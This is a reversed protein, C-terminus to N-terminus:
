RAISFDKIVAMHQMNNAGSDGQQVPPVASLPQFVRSDFVLGRETLNDADGLVVQTRLNKLAQSTYIGDYPNGRKANTGIKGDQDIPCDKTSDMAVIGSKKLLSLAADSFDNSNFDGAIAIFDGEPINMAQINAILEEMSSQRLGSTTSLHVSFLWLDKGGPIDIQAWVHHRNKENKDDLMGQSKFPYYSVIGNPIVKDSTKPEVYQYFRDGFAKMVM